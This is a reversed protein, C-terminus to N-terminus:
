ACTNNLRKFLCPVYVFRVRGDTGGVSPGVVQGALNQGLVLVADGDGGAVIGQVAAGSQSDVSM